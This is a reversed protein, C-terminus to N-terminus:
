MKMPLSIKFQAGTDTNSVAITGGMNAIIGYSISLGIGTGKGIEKTTFFPNFIDQIIQDPIGGGTDTVLIDVMGSQSCEEVKITVRGQGFDNVINEEIADGANTLLNMIVQELQTAHGMVPCCTDPMDVTLNINRVKFQESVFQTANNIVNIVSIPTPTESAERGYTRMHNIITSAREIQGNIRNLKKTVLEPSIDGDEIFELLSDVSMQIINLPQNLEHAVGTAMEGLSAMKGAQVLQAEASKLETIDQITGVHEVPTDREDRIVKGIDKIYRVEGDPRLIRYDIEYNEGKDHFENFVADYLERDDPHIVQDLHDNILDYIEEVTVGYISAYEDSCAILKKDKTDRRWNGVHAIRQANSLSEDSQMKAKELDAKTHELNEALDVLRKGQEEMAARSMELDYNANELTQGRLILENEKHKLESVDNMIVVVSGDKSRRESIDLYTGNQYSLTEHRVPLHRNKLRRDIWTDAPVDLRLLGSWVLATLVDKYQMGVHMSGVLGHNAAFKDNFQKLRSDQGWIAFGEGICETASKFQMDKRIYETVDQWQIIVDDNATIREKVEIWRGDALQELSTCRMKRFNSLRNQLAGEPDCVIDSGALNGGEIIRRMLEEYTLGIIGNISEISLFLRLFQENCYELRDDSDFCTLGIRLQDLVDYFLPFKPNNIELPASESLHVSPKQHTM